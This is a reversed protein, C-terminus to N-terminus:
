PLAYLVRLGLAFTVNHQPDDNDIMFYMRELESRFRRRSKVDIPVETMQEAGSANYLVLRKWWLWSFGEDGSPDPLALANGADEDVMGFGVVLETDVALTEVRVYLSGIMRLITVGARGAGGGVSRFGSTIEVASSAGFPVSSPDTITNDWVTRRRPGRARFSRQSRRRTTM